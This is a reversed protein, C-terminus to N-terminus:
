RCIAKTYAPTKRIVFSMEALCRLPICISAKEALSSKRKDGKVRSAYSRIALM